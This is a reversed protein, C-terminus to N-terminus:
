GKRNFLYELWISRLKRCNKEGFSQRCTSGFIVADNEMETIHDLNVLTSQGCLCFREDELLQAVAETFSTRLTTSELTSGDSLHYVVARNAIQVYVISDFRLKVSRDKTKVFLTKVSHQSIVALADTMTKCFAEQRVPKILYDFARVQFADLSYEKSSTLYIIKGTYGEDRLRIGLAIGDMGPMIVDLIYIEYGGIKASAELLDEPHTFADVILGLEPRAHIFEAAMAVVSDLCYPDDDCIAIRM